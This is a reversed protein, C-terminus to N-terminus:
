LSPRVIADFDCRLTGRQAADHKAFSPNESLSSASLTTRLREGSMIKARSSHRLHLGGRTISAKHHTELTHPTCKMFSAHDHLIRASLSALLSAICLKTAPSSRRRATQENSALGAVLTVARVLTCHKPHARSCRTQRGLQRRVDREHRRTLASRCIERPICGECSEPTRAYSHRPRPRPRASAM